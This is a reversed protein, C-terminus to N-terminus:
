AVVYAGTFLFHTDPCKLELSCETLYEDIQGDQGAPQINTFLKTDRNALHVYRINKLDLILGYAGYVTGDLLPDYVVDLIGYSTVLKKVHVGYTEGGVETYLDDVDWSDIAAATVGGVIMLKEQSGHRFAEQAVHQNFKKYTFNVNPSDGTAFAQVNSGGTIFEVLGGMTRRTGDSTDEVAQGFYMSRAIDLKHEAAIKRRQYGIDNGGYLKSNKLTNSIEFPTRFIQTYNYKPVESTSIRARPTSNEKQANGIILVPTDDECIAAATAGWSRSVTLANNTVGTVLMNEGTAPINLIDGIRFITGDDVNLTTADAATQGNVLTSTSVYDDEMWEFKPSDAVRIGGNSKIRKIITVFPAINPDLLAIQDAMDVVRRNQTINTTLRAGTIAAM